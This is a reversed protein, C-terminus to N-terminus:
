WPWDRSHMERALEEGLALHERTMAEFQGFLKPTRSGKQQRATEAASSLNNHLATVREVVDLLGADDVLRARVNLSVRNFQLDRSNDDSRTDRGTLLLLDATLDLLKDIAHRTERNRARAASEAERRREDTREEDRVRAAEERAM